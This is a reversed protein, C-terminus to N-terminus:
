CLRAALLQLVLRSKAGACPSVTVVLDADSDEAAVTITQIARGRYNRMIWMSGVFARMSTVGEHPVVSRLVERGRKNSGGARELSYLYLTSSSLNTVNVRRRQTRPRRYALADDELEPCFRPGAAPAPAPAPGAAPPTTPQPPRKPVKWAKPGSTTSEEGGNAAAAAAASPLLWGQPACLLLCMVVALIAAGSIRGADRRSHRCRPSGRGVVPRSM